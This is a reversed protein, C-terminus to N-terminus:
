GFKITEFFVFQHDYDEILISDTSTLSIKPPNATLDISFDYFDIQKESIHILKKDNYYKLLSNASQRNIKVEDVKFGKKFALIEQGLNMFYCDKTLSEIKIKHKFEQSVEYM